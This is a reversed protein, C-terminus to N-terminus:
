HPPTQLIRGIDLSDLCRQADPEGLDRARRYWAAAQDLDGRMGMVGARDLYAPDYTRGLLLAAHGDGAEAAREFFLRATAIDGNGLLDGGRAVLTEPLSPAPPEPVAAQVPPAEPAPAAAQPPAMTATPSAFIITPRIADRFPQSKLLLGASLLLAICGFAVIAAQFPQLAARVGAQRDDADQAAAPSSASPQEFNRYLPNFGAATAAGKAFLIDAASVRERAAPEAEDDPPAPDRALMVAALSSRKETM